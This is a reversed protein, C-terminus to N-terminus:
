YFKAFLYTLNILAVFHAVILQRTDERAEQLRKTDIGFGLGNIHELVEDTGIKTTEGM